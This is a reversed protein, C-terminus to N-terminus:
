LSYTRVKLYKFCLPSKGPPGTALVVREWHLPDLNLGQDSFQIGCVTFFDRLHCCLDRTRCSLGPAALYTFILFFFFFFSVIPLYSERESGRRQFLFLLHEPFPQLIFQVSKSLSPAEARLAQGLSPRGEGMLEEAGPAGLGTPCFRKIPVPRSPSHLCDLRGLSPLRGPGGFSAWAAALMWCCPMGLGTQWQGRLRCPTRSAQHVHNPAWHSLISVSHTGLWHWTLQITVNQPCMSVDPGLHSFHFLVIGAM